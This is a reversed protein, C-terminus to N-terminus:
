DLFLVAGHDLARALNLERYRSDIRHVLDRANSESSDLEFGCRSMIIKQADVSTRGYRDFNAANACLSLVRSFGTISMQMNRVLTGLGIQRVQKKVGTKHTLNNKAINALRETGYRYVYHSAGTHM